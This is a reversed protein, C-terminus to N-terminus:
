TLGDICLRGAREQKRGRAPEIVSLFAPPSSVFRRPLLTVRASDQWRCAPRIAVTPRDSCCAGADQLLAAIGSERIEMAGPKHM